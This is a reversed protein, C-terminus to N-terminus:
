TLYQAHLDVFPIKMPVSSLFLLDPDASLIFSSPFRLLSVFNFHNCRQLMVRRRRPQSVVSFAPLTALTFAPFTLIRLLLQAPESSWKIVSRSRCSLPM